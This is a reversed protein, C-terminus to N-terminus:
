HCVWEYRGIIIFLHSDMRFAIQMDCKWNFSGNCMQYRRLDPTVCTKTYQVTCVCSACTLSFNISVSWNLWYIYVHKLACQVPSDSICKVCFCFAYIYQPAPLTVVSLNPLWDRNRACWWCWNENSTISIITLLCFWAIVQNPQTPFWHWDRWSVCFMRYEISTHVHPLSWVCVDNSTQQKGCVCSRSKTLFCFWTTIAFQIYQCQM